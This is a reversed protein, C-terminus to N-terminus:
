LGHTIPEIIPWSVLYNQRVGSAPPGSASLVASKQHDSYSGKAGARSVAEFKRRSRMERSGALGPWGSLPRSNWRGFNACEPSRIRVLSKRQGSGHLM